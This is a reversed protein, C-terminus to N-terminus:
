GTRRPPWGRPQDRVEGCIAAAFVVLTTEGALAGSPALIGEFGEARAQEALDQCRTWDNGRLEGVEVGLRRRIEPDTLDLVHLGAVRGRGILYVHKKVPSATYGRRELEAVFGGVHPALPGTMAM